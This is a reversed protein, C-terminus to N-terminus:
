ISTFFNIYVLCLSIVEEARECFGKLFELCIETKESVKKHLYPCDTKSCMGRLYFKCAPMKSLNVDHSLHCKTKHCAGKLFRFFTISNLRMSSIFFTLFVLLFSFLFSQVFKQCIDVQKPDHLKSCKSREFAVCKGLKRYIPCPINTKKLRRTLLNISRQKATTLHVRNRHFDTREFTNNSKQVYTVRGIDIRKLSKDATMTDKTNEVRILNKGSSDLLFNEGRIILRRSSAPLKSSKSSSELDTKRLKLKSAKYIIGNINLCESAKKIPM